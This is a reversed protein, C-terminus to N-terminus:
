DWCSPNVINTSNERLNELCNLQSRTEASVMRRGAFCGDTDDSFDFTTGDGLSMVVVKEMMKKKTMKVMQGGGYDDNGRFGMAMMVM